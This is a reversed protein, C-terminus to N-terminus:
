VQEMRMLRYLALRAIGQNLVAIAALFVAGIALFIPLMVDWNTTIVFPPVVPDGSDTVALPSVMLRSMQFGAWSGLGLGIVAIALHEFGLLGLQQRPSLGISQLFGMESQTRKAFLLLYSIYGFAAVLVALGGSVLVMPRWGVSVYLDERLSELRLSGDHVRGSQGALAQLAERLEDHREPALRVFAENHRVEYNSLLVNLNPLLLDLDAVVFLGPDLTPFYDLVGKVVVPIWQRNVQAFGESGVSFGNSTAVASGIIIPLPGQLPTAYFGQLGQITSQGFAFAGAGEGRFADSTVRSFTEVSRASTIIPSWRRDGEFDELVHREGSPGVTAQIDDVLYVGAFASGPPQFTLVSVLRLPGRFDAPIEGTLLQWDPLGPSGLSITESRGEDNAVQAYLTLFPNFEMPKAWLGVTTAGEPIALREAEGVSRLEGILDRVPQGAFDERFWSIDSFNGSEIALLQGSVNGVSASGRLALSVNAVGPTELLRKRLTPANDPQSGSFAVRMDGGVSYKVREVQSQELTGGVTTALISLGTVMVLLLVLWVYQLPNRAMRWLGLLVWAPTSRAAARLFLFLLQAPVIAMAAAMPVFLLRDPELAQVALLGGLLGSQVLLGVLWLSRSRTRNTAWYAGGFILVLGVTGVWAAGAEEEVGRFAIGASLIPVALATLLHVLALSEGVIYRMVLPFLRVFLLALALLFFVPGLLLVENVELEKFLGGSVVHGRQSMEWFILGGLVLVAVDMYYRHFLPLSPPRSMRLRQVLVGGRSSALGPAVFIALAVLGVALSVLFPSAELRVPMLSGGTMERFPPLLGVLGVLAMAVFPALVVALAAMAVGELAYLRGLHSLGAGRTQLLAFERERSDVLYTVMMFLFLLVTAVAVTLVLLLPVRALLNRGEAINTLSPIVGITVSAGPVADLIEEEFETLRRRAENVSWAKFPEKEVTVFWIPRVLSGPHTVGLSGLIAEETAFLVVPVRDEDRQAFLPLNAGVPGPDLFVTANDWYGDSPDEAEAVGVIRASITPQGGLTSSFAVVDGIKLQHKSASQSSAVAELELGQLGDSITDGSMRGASFRVHQELGSLNQLYGVPVNIGEEGNAPLPRTPHGALLIPSRAYTGGGFPVSVQAPISLDFMAGETIFLALPPENPVAQVMLPPPDLPPPPELLEPAARWMQSSAESPEIVGVIKVFLPGASLLGPAMVVDDDLSLGFQGATQSSVVAEIEAGQEGGSVRDAPLRGEVLRTHQELGTLSQLYGRSLFIGSGNGEYLPQYPPGAVAVATRLYRTQGAHVPSLHRDIANAVVRETRDLSKRTLPVNPLFVAFEFTTGSLGDLYRNFSLQGLSNLYIPTGAAVTAALAIGAFISVLLKWDDALRRMILKPMSLAEM